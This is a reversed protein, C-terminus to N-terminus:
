RVEELRQAYLSGRAAAASEHWARLANVDGAALLGRIHELQTIAAGLTDALVRGNAAYVDAWLTPSSGAVRTASRFSPGPQLLGSFEDSQAALALTNAFLHPLASVVAMMRDHLNADIRVPDAGLGTIFRAVQETLLPDSVASPTLYWSCGAFLAASANDIGPTEVGALPHGGVFRRDDVAAALRGKVSGVDTVACDTGVSRLVETVIQHLFRVPVAVVVTDAGAVAGALSGAGSVIAGRSKARQLVDPNHDWGTVEAGLRERAALAVSGGILGLGVVAVRM